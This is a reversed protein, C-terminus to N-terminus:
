SNCGIAQGDSHPIIRRKGPRHKILIWSWDNLWKFMIYLVDWIALNMPGFHPGGPDQGGLPPGMNAGQDKSDHTNITNANHFQYSNKYNLYEIYRVTQLMSPMPYWIAEGSSLNVFRYKPSISLFHVTTQHAGPLCIRHFNLYSIPLSSNCYMIVRTNGVDM